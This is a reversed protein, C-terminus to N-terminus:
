FPWQVQSPAFWSTSWVENGRVFYVTNGHIFSRASVTYDPDDERTLPAVELTLQTCLPWFLGRM